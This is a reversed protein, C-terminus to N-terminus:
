AKTFLFNQGEIKLTFENKSENFQIEIGGERESGFKDKGINEFSIASGQGEEPTGTLTGNEETFSLKVPIQKSAYNGLYNDLIVAKELESKDASWVNNATNIDPFVRDPDLTITAIEETTVTKLDWSTNRQWIEVPLQMRSVVGSKTKIELVVPMAMKELNEISIVAGLKPDNKLYKIKTIGQDLQWNNVFWSRWFWNLDEGSVNEMTRFFDDPTPHKFAWRETYTRFAKDFREKGLVQERLVILGTAPKDYALAGLHRERMGDPATMIPEMDSKFLTKAAKQMNKPRSKYEGNNFDVSSLSNIFTNFGEDMWAFLRENSGVIMPYWSHGFEHDTVSWLDEGKSKWNCFVIGPYEMGGENGAVNVAAPYPHEFWRKSYNEISTKTYETARSWADEGTSEVPYASIAISKKGSPLNIKAADIIFASSSAWSVDRANKIKFHWNLTTKGTPRSAANTVEEASRIIVTKDSQSAAAWRKQQEATYVESPNLLEGSCVVIHNSPANITVDFDGYDLYFEGAGLYPLSNWGKIDDYVCMRPYWQAITFIKGNKTELVGMRDSGFDPSIFSFEIKLKISGGNANLDQPLFVQMRTDTIEFKAEKEIAKGNQNAIVKISKIKHGGDFIQGKDGNRSGTVPIVAKGLSNSKFLNQDVNMWLFSIKDPSNNTYTLIETGIIENKKENLTATLLYDARNQWYKAGPQGSASHTETGNKTYFNPAFADHYNYKSTPKVNTGGTTPQEQAQLCMGGLFLALFSAKFQNNKM